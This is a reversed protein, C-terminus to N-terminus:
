PTLERGNAKHNEGKRQLGDALLLHITHSLSRENRAALELLQRKIEPMLRISYPSDQKYYPKKM